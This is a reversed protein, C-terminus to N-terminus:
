KVYITVKSGSTIQIGKKPLQETVVKEDTEQENEDLGEINVELGLEKLVKTADIATMEIVNPMEINEKIDDEIEQKKVELYPLV